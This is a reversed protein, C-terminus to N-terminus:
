RYGRFSSSEQLLQEYGIQLFQNIHTSRLAVCCSSIEDFGQQFFENSLDFCALSCITEFRSPITELRLDGWKEDGVFFGGSTMVAEV